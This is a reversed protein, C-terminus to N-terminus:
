DDEEETLLPLKSERVSSMRRKLVTGFDFEQM